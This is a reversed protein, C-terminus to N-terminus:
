NFYFYRYVTHFNQWVINVLIVTPFLHTNLSRLVLLRLKKDFFSIFVLLVNFVSEVPLCPTFINVSETTKHICNENKESYNISGITLAIIPMRCVIVVIPRVIEEIVQLISILSFFDKMTWKHWVRMIKIIYKAMPWKAYMIPMCSGNKEWCREMKSNTEDELRM